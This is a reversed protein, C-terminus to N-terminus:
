PRGVRGGALVREAWRGVRARDIKSAHRIDVPLEDTVLVAAVPVEVASRVVASLDPPALVGSHAQGDLELVAVVQATGPPGVGVVAASRVGAIGEIRQERGVPTVPGHATIIVNVLRGEVWLRGRDDFHGVDGSRHWGPTRSSLRDTAWLRDYRDKVHAAAICIEGTVGAEDTLAGEAHGNADLPSVRVRVHPVPHGVCVGNGPGAAELEPLSIDCVPLVETMGYPTHLEAGPLVRQVRRLLRVPVPAGASLVLRVRALATRQGSSLDSQTAVVNRLAAPSAFVVTADIADVAEALAAATLTGPKTVDGDPVASGIGLAPGYLAFPAFAAVMRDQDSIQYAKALLDIQARLQALRYVVGKPPGTAGSTFLVAAETDASGIEPVPSGKGLEHLEELTSHGNLAGRLLPLEPGVLIRRGPVHLARAALLARGIGIVHDPSASRLADGLSRVGLGADAVVIIAGVRWCAYLAATLEIGPPVLLAVRHGPRVGVASLGAALRQVRAELEAFSVARFQGGRLEVVAPRADNARDTLAAWPKLVDGDTPRPKATPRGGIWHWVQEATEPVDETVLHSARRHRQVDAYPLRQLLDHLYRESFVPDRAGWVLFTPVAALEGLRAAIDALVSYSPHDHQLPIDSVFEAVARRRGSGRYPLALASRISAPLPPWSLASAARVFIPTRACVLERLPASRALRILASPVTGPPQALGTNTLVIGAMQARHELAWGVSIPGGWDHALTVVPGTVGLTQTLAGLDAIREALRRPAASRDSFGMGLQDVALVRWGPPATALFRRWLYSWTPNGHLCLLTGVSSEVGNDLVHWTHTVDDAGAVDVWRSWSVEIGPLEELPPGPSV